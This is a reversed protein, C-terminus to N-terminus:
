VETMSGTNFEHNAILVNVVAYAGYANAAGGPNPEGSLEVIKLQSESSALGTSYWGSLGSYADGTGAALNTLLRIDAAAVGTSDSRVAFLVFPDDIVFAKATTGTKIATSAPWYKSWITDGLANVYECGQFVGTILGSAATAIGINKGTGTTAVPDGTYLATSYGDAITYENARIVGGFMHRVPALGFPANTNAM